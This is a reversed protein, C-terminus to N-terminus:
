LYKGLQPERRESFTLRYGTSMFSDLVALKRMQQFPLLINTIMLKFPSMDNTYPVYFYIRNTIVVDTCIFVSPPPPPLFLLLLILFLLLLLLLFPLSFCNKSLKLFRLVSTSEIRPRQQPVAEHPSLSCTPSSATWMITSLFHLPIPLPWILYARWLDMELSRSEVRLYWGRFNQDDGLITGGASLIWSRHSCRMSFADPLQYAPLAQQIGFM